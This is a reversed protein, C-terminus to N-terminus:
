VIDDTNAKANIGFAVNISTTNPNKIRFFCPNTVFFASIGTVSLTYLLVFAKVEITESGNVKVKYVDVPGSSALDYIQLTKDRDPKVDIQGYAPITIVTTNLSNGM